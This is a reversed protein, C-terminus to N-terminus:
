ANDHSEDDTLGHYMSVYLVQGNSKLIKAMMAPGINIAPGLWRGVQEKPEPYKALSDWFKVWAYFPLEVFPSIDATQGSMITEPVQGQLEYKDLATYSRIYAELELCHDWLKPPCSSKAMKQGAGCKLEQITGEAANSWLTYPETQKVCTAVERCKCHFKAMIQEKANDCIITIPVGDCQALLSFGKHADSKRKMPYARTWRFSTSFVQAYKNKRFWTTTWAELTDTFM